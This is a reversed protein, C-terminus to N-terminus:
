APVPKRNLMVVFESRHACEGRRLSLISAVAALVAPDRPPLHAATFGGKFEEAIFNTTLKGARFRPHAMLAALFPVNHSVGRVYFEDLARRMRDIADIRSKGYSCLKAIMPDYFM